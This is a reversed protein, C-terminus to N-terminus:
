RAGGDRLEDLACLARNMARWGVGYGRQPDDLMLAEIRRAAEDLADRVARDREARLREVEDLLAPVADRAAAIFAADDDALSRAVPGDRDDPPPTVEAWHRDETVRWAWPGPTAAEALARWDALRAADPATM